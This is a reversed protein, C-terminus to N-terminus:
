AQKQGPTYLIPSMGKKKYIYPRALNRQIAIMHAQILQGTLQKGFWDYYWKIHRNATDMFFAFIHDQNHYVAENLELPSQAIVLWSINHHRATKLFKETLPPIGKSNQQTHFEDIAVVRNGLRLAIELFKNMEERTKQQPLYQMNGDILADISRVPTGIGNFGNHNYDYTWIKYTRPLKQLLQRAKFTKGSKGDGIIVVHESAEGQCLNISIM